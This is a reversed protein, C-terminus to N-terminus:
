TSSCCAASVAPLPPRGIGPPGGRMGESGGSRQHAANLASQFAKGNTPDAASRADSAPADSAPQAGLPRTAPAIGLFPQM